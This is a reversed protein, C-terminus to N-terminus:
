AMFLRGLLATRCSKWPYNQSEVPITDHTAAQSPGRKGDGSSSRPRTSAGTDGFGNLFGANFLARTRFDLCRAHAPAPLLANSPPASSLPLSSPSCMNRNRRRQRASGQGVVCEQFRLRSYSTM